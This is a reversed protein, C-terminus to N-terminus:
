TPRIQPRTTEAPAVPTSTSVPSPTSRTVSTTGGPAEAPSRTGAASTTLDTLARRPRQPAQVLSELVYAQEDETMQPYLPIMLTEAAARESEPLHPVDGRSTYAPERHVAMVGRRTAVGSEAMAAMLGDRDIPADPRMRVIYSQYTHTRDPPSYPPVLWPLRSRIETDYVAALRNRERLIWELRGLQTLGLAAQMDTMRWNYGVDEYTEFVVGGSRHREVDSVSMHHHRLLRLRAAIDGDDTTVMGGEGTSIVTRPHFSFCTQRTGAGAGVMRGRYAAGIAPAADEVVVLGHRQAVADVADLDAALALDVPVIARTRATVSAEASAPDITYTLPDIDCFVPTAGAHLVTNATAIYTFAPVVVEDGPGIGAALFAAHLATTCSTTAVAEAAGVLEAVAAEFEAVVPGQTWWGSRIVGTVAMEEAAGHIPKTLPIRM